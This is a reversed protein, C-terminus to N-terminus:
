LVRKLQKSLLVLTHHKLDIHKLKFKHGKIKFEEGTEFIPWDKAKAEDMELQNRIRQMEGTDPNMM